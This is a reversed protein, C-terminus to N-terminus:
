QGEEQQLPEFAFSLGRVDGQEIEKLIGLPKNNAAKLEAKLKKIQKKYKKKYKKKAFDYGLLMCKAGYDNTTTFVEKLPPLGLGIDLAQKVHIEPMTIIDKTEPEYYDNIFRM